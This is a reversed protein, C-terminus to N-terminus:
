VQISFARACVECPGFGMDLSVEALSRGAWITGGWPGFGMELSVKLGNRSSFFFLVSGPTILSLLALSITCVVVGFRVVADLGLTCWFGLDCWRMWGWRADNKTKKNESLLVKSM